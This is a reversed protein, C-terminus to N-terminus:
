RNHPPSYPTFLFAWAPVQARRTGEASPRTYPRVRASWGASTWNEDQRTPPHVVDDEVLKDAVQAPLREEDATAIIAALAVARTTLRQSARTAMAGGVGTMLAGVLSTGIVKVM